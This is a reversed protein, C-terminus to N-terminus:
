GMWAERSGHLEDLLEEHSLSNLWEAYEIHEAVESLAKSITEGYASIDQNNVRVLWTMGNQLGTNEITLSYKM